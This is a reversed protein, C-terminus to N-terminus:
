VVYTEYTITGLKAITKETTQKHVFQKKSFTAFKTKQYFEQQETILPIKKKKGFDIIKMAHKRLFKCFTKLCDEGRFVYHTNEIGNVTMSMSIGVLFTNVQKQLSHNRLIIKVDM